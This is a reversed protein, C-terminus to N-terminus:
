KQAELFKIYALAAKYQEDSLGEILRKAEARADEQPQDQDSATGGLLYDVSVGYYDALRTVIEIRPTRQGTEYRALAIRSIGCSEAATDQNVSKLTRLDRLRDAITLQTM